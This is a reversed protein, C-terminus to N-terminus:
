FLYNSWVPVEKRNVISYILSFFFHLKEFLAENKRNMLVGPINAGKSNKKIYEAVEKTTMAEKLVKIKAIKEGKRTM